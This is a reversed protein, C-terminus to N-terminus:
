LLSGRRRTYPQFRDFVTPILGINNESKCKLVFVFDSESLDSVFVFAFM